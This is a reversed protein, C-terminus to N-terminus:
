PWWRSKQQQGVRHRLIGVGALELEVLDGLSLREGFELRCGNGLQVLAL